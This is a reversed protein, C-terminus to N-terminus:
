IHSFSHTHRRSRENYYKGRQRKKEQAYNKEVKRRLKKKPKVQKGSNGSMLTYLKGPLNFM